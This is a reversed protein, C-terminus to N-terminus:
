AFLRSQLALNEWVTRFEYTPRKSDTDREYFLGFAGLHDQIYSNNPGKPCCPASSTCIQRETDSAHIRTWTLKLREWHSIVQLLNGQIFELAHVFKLDKM